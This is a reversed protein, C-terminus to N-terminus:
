LIRSDFDLVVCITLHCNGFSPFFGDFHSGVTASTQYSNTMNPLHQGKKKERADAFPFQREEQSFNGINQLM